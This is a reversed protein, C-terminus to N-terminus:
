NWTEFNDESIFILGSHGTGLFPVEFWNTIKDTGFKKPLEGLKYARYKQGNVLYNLYNKHHTKLKRLVKMKTQKLNYIIKM